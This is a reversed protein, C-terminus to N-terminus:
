RDGGTVPELKDGAKLPAERVALWQENFALPQIDLPAKGKPAVQYRNDRFTVMELPILLVDEEQILMVDCQVSMGPRMRQLDTENQQIVVKFMPNRGLRAMEIGRNGITQVRGTFLDDPYADMRMDVKQGEHLTILDTENVYTEIVLASTEPIYAMPTTARLTDGVRAKRRSNRLIEYVLYGTTKARVVLKDVDANFRDYDARVNKIDIDLKELRTKDNAIQNDLDRKASLRDKDASRAKLKAEQLTRAELVGQPKEADILAKRYAIESQELMLRKEHASKEGEELVREREALLEVLREELRQLNELATSNDFRAIVDGANILTGEDALWKLQIEWNDTRPVLIYEARAAAIVGNLTLTKTFPGRQVQGTNFATTLLLLWIM